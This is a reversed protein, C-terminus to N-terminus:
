GDDFMQQVFPRLQPPLKGLSYLMCVHRMAEKNGSAAARVAKLVSKEDATLLQEDDDSSDSLVGSDKLICNELHTDTHNRLAEIEMHTYNNVSDPVIDLLERDKSGLASCESEPKRGHADHV